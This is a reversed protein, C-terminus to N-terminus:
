PVWFTKYIQILKFDDIEVLWSLLNRQHWFMRGFNFKGFASWCPYVVLRDQPSYHVQALTLFSKVAM